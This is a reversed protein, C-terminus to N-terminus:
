SMCSEPLSLVTFSILSQPQGCDESRRGGDPGEGGRSAGGKGGKGKGKKRDKGKGGGRGTSTTGMEGGTRKRKRELEEPTMDSYLDFSAEGKERAAKVAKGIWQGLSGQLGQQVRLSAEGFELKIVFHGPARKWEGTTEQRKSRTKNPAVFRSSSLLAPGLGM